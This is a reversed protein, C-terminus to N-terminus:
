FIYGKNLPRFDSPILAISSIPHGCMYWSCICYEPIARLEAVLVFFNALLTYQFYSRYMYVMEINSIDWREVHRVSLNSVDQDLDDVDYGAKRPHQAPDTSRLDM